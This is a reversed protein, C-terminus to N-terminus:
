LEECIYVGHVDATAGSANDDQLTVDIDTDAAYVQNIAKDEAHTADEAITMTKPTTGDTIIVACNYGSGPATQADVFGRLVKFPGPAEFGDIAKVAAANGVAGIWTFPLIFVRGRSGRYTKTAPEINLEAETAASFRDLVGAFVNTPTLQVTQDDAVFMPKGEDAQTLGAAVFTHVGDADVLVSKDGDSGGTNDVAELAVGAFKYGAVNAAATHYGDAKECVMAGLYVVADAALKVKKRGGSRSVTNRDQSLATM